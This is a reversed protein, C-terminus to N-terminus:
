AESKNIESLEARIYGYKLLWLIHRLLHHPHLTSNTKVSDLVTQISINAYVEARSNGNEGRGNHEMILDLIAELVSQDLINFHSLYEPPAIVMRSSSTASVGSPTIALMTDLALNESSYHSFTNYYRPWAFRAKGQIGKVGDAVKGLEAWLDNYQKAVAAFSYHTTAVERSRDGMRQRLVENNLLLHLHTEMEGMDIAVSQGISFHDFQWGCMPGFDDLDDTSNMWRTRTLFGTEGHRVTDRYGDWDPLVQPVGAAMAEIVTIGFSETICDTPSTFVDVSQMLLSKTGDSIELMFTFLKDVGHAHISQQLQQSYGYDETGAILCLIPKGANREALSKIMLIFPYLDAKLPSLRGLMLIIFTNAPLKLQARARTKTHTAFLTMNVCLPIRDVRGRYKVHNGTNLAVEAEVHAILNLVVQMSAKSTCIISDCEFTGELILRLYCDYLLHHYSLGHTLLTVPYIRNGCKRRMTQSIEIGEHTSTSRTSPLPNFSAQLLPPAVRGTLVDEISTVRTKQKIAEPLQSNALYIETKTKAPSHVLLELPVESNILLAQALSDAAVVSGRLGTSVGSFAKRLMSESIRQLLPKEQRLSDYQRINESLFIGITM